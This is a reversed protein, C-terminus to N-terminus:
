KKKSEKKVEKLEAFEEEKVVAKKVRKAKVKAEERINLAESESVVEDSPFCRAELEARLPSNTPKNMRNLERDTLHKAFHNAKVSELFIEMGAPFNHGVGDWKWSFAEDSWNKFKKAEM